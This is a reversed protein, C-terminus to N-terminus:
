EDEGKGFTFYIVPGFLLLIIVVVLWMIKNGFRYHPHHLIHVVAAAALAIDMLLIPILLPLMKLITDM